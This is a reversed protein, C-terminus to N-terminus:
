KGFSINFSPQEPAYAGSEDVAFYEVPANVAKFGVRPTYTRSAGTLKVNDVFIAGIKNGWGGRGDTFSVQIQNTNDSTTFDVSYTEWQDNAIETVIKSDPVGVEEVIMKGTLKGDGGDIGGKCLASLTYTEGPVVDVTQMIIGDSWGTSWKYPYLKLVHNDHDFENDLEQPIIQQQSNWRDGIVVDWGEIAGTLSPDEPHLDFEGEFGPNKILNEIVDGNGSAFYPQPAYDCVRLTDIAIGDRYIFAREDPTVAIRYVHAKGDNNYFTGTGGPKSKSAPNRLGKEYSNMVAFKNPLINAEFGHGNELVLFPHFGQEYDSTNVKFEITFGNKANLPHEFRGNTLTADDVKISSSKIDKVSLPTGIGLLNVYSRVDGSRLIISGETKDKSSNYTVTVVTKHNGAPIVTPSVSFGNPATLKIEEASLASPNITFKATCDTGKITIDPIIASVASEKEKDDAAYALGSSLVAIGVVTLLRYVSQQQLM